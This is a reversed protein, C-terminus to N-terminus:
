KRSWQVYYWEPSGEKDTEIIYDLDATIKWGNEIREIRPDQGIWESWLVPQIARHFAAVDEKKTLKLIVCLFLFATAIRATM